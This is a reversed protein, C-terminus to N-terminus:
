DTKNRLGSLPLSLGGGRVGGYTGKIAYPPKRVMVSLARCHSSGGAEQAVSEGHRPPMREDQLTAVM